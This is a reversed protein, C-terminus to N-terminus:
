KLIEKLFKSKYNPRYWDIIEDSLGLFWDASVDFAKCIAVIHNAKINNAGTEWNNVMSRNVGCLEGFERQTLGNAVRLNTIRSGMTWSLNTM